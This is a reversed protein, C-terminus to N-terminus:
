DKKKKLSEIVFDLFKDFEKYINFNALFFHYMVIGDATALIIDIYNTSQTKINDLTIETQLIESLVSAMYKNYKNSFHNIVKNEKSSYILLFEKYLNLFVINEKTENLYVDYLITLKQKLSNASFIRERNNEVYEVSLLYFLMGILEDKSEFYHYFTGKAIKLHKLLEELSFNKIGKKSIYEYSQYVLELRRQDKDVIKPM